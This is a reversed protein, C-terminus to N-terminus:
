RVGTFDHRRCDDVRHQRPYACQARRSLDSQVPHRNYRGAGFHAEQADQDAVQCRDRLGLTDADQLNATVDHAEPVFECAPRDHFRQRGADPQFQVRVHQSSKEGALVAVREPDQMVRHLGTVVSGDNRVAHRCRLLGRSDARVPLRRGAVGLNKGAPV